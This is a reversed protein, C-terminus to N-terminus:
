ACECPQNALLPMRSEEKKLMWKRALELCHSLEERLTGYKISLIQQGVADETAAAREWKDPANLYVMGWYTLGGKVCPVCNAHDAWEYMKPVRIGWCESVTSMCESKSIRKEILPFRVEWPKKDARVHMRQARRWEEVTYGLYVVCPCHKRMWRDGTEQKLIRSCPTVRQNGLFKEDEFLQWIDRGDSVDTVPLGIYAAAETRFRGNDEPETKTDHFLLVTNAPNEDAVIKGMVASAVGGSFTAVHLM